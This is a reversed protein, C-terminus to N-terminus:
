RSSRASSIEGSFRGTVNVRVISMCNCMVCVGNGGEVVMGAGVV